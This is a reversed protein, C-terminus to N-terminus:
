VKKQKKNDRNKLFKNTYFASFAGFAGTIIAQFISVFFGSFHIDLISNMWGFIHNCMALFGGFLITVFNSNDHHTPMQKDNKM